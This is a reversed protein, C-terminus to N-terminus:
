KGTFLPDSSDSVMRPTMMPPSPSPPPSSCRGGASGGRSSGPGPHSARRHAIRALLQTYGALREENCHRQVCCGRVDRLCARAPTSECSWILSHPSDRVSLNGAGYGGWCAWSFPVGFCLKGYMCVHACACVDSRFLM